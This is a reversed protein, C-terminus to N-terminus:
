TLKKALMQWPSSTFFSKRTGLLLFGMTSAFSQEHPLLMAVHCLFGSWFALRAMTVRYTWGRGRADLNKGRQCANERPKERRGGRNRGSVVGCDSFSGRARAFASSARTDIGLRGGHVRRVPLRIVPALRRHQRVVLRQVSVLRRVLADLRVLGLQPRQVQLGDHAGLRGDLVPVQVAGLGHLVHVLVGGLDLADAAGEGHALELLLHTHHRAM